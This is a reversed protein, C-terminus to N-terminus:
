AGPSFPIKKLVTCDVFVPLFVFAKSIMFDSGEASSFLPRFGHLSKPNWRHDLSSLDLM